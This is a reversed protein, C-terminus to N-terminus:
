SYAFLDMSRRTDLRVRFCCKIFEHKSDHQFYNRPAHKSNNYFDDIFAINLKRSSITFEIKVYCNQFRRQFWRPCFKHIYTHFCKLCRTKYIHQFLRQFWQHFNFHTPFLTWAFKLIVNSTTNSVMKQSLNRIIISSMHANLKKTPAIQFITLGLWVMQPHYSFSCIDQIHLNIQTQSISVRLQLNM